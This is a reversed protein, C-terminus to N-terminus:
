ITINCIVPIFYENKSSTYWTHELVHHLTLNLPHNTEPGLGTMKIMDGATLRANKDMDIYEMAVGNSSLTYSNGKPTTLNLSLPGEDTVLHMSINKLDEGARYRVEQIRLYRTDNMTDYTINPNFVVIPYRGVMQGLGQVWEIKAGCFGFYYKTNNKCGLIIFEDGVDLVGNVNNDFLTVSRGDRLTLTWNNGILYGGGMRMKSGDDDINEVIRIRRVQNDTMTDSHIIQIHAMDEETSFNYSYGIECYNEWLWPASSTKYFPGKYWISIPKEESIM